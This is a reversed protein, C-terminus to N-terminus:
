PAEERPATVQTAIAPTSDAAPQASAINGAGIAPATTIESPLRHLILITRDDNEGKKEFGLWAALKERAQPAGLVPEHPEQKEFGTLPENVGQRLQEFIRQSNKATPYFPDEIGDSCFIFADANAAGIAVVKQANRVADADPIFCNVEGSFEGSDSEGYRKAAGDRGQAAM